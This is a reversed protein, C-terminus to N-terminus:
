RRRRMREKFFRMLPRVYPLGTDIDIVDVKSRRLARDVQTRRTENTRAFAADFGPKSTNVVVREGTEPDELEILGLQPLAREREDGIRVAIM